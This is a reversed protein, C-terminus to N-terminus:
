VRTPSILSTCMFPYTFLVERAIWHNLRSSGSCPAHTRDRTSSSLDWMGSQWIFLNKFILIIKLRYSFLVSCILVMFLNWTIYVLPKGPPVLPLSNVQWHLLRLLHQNSGQTSIIGQLLSCGGVTTNQDPSNWPSYLGHPRLSNSMVSHSESIAVIQIECLHQEKQYIGQIWIRLM